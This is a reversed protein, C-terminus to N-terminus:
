QNILFFFAFCICEFGVKMEWGVSYDLLNHVKPNSPNSLMGQMSYSIDKIEFM